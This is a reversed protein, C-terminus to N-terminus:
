CIYGVENEPHVLSVVELFYNTNELTNNIELNVQEMSSHQEARVVPFCYKPDLMWQWTISFGTYYYKYGTNVNVALHVVRRDAHGHELGPAEHRPGVGDRM